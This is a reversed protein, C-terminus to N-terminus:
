FATPSLVIGMIFFIIPYIWFLILDLRKFM